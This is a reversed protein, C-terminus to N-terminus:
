TELILNYELPYYKDTPFDVPNILSVDIPKLTTWDMKSIKTKPKRDIIVPPLINNKKPDNKKPDNKKPNNKEPHFINNYIDLIGM